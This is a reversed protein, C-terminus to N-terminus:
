PTMGRAAEAYIEEASLVTGFVKVEDLLGDLAYANKRGVYNGIVLPRTSALIKAAIEQEQVLECDVYMRLWRGDYTVAVHSWFGAPVSWEASSVAPESSDAAGFQFTALSWFYRLRWGPWPGRGSKDGKNGLIEYTASRAAPKIWALVSLAAPALLGENHKIELYQESAATFKLCNGVIGPVVQPQKGDLGCARAEHGHGSADAVLGDQIAELPWYALPEAAAVAGCGVACLLVALALKNRM